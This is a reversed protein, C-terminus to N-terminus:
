HSAAELYAALKQSAEAENGPMLHGYRDYTITVSAHGLYSSLAKANVGAAIMLSAFTHRAEHLTIANLGAATWAAKARDGVTVPQFPQTTTRGFVLGESRGTRLRHGILQERLVGVLPVTRTGARSKPEIVGEHMDWSRVIHILNRALDVDDWRLAMLEGRRLGAYLATAWLPREAEPLAELLQAAEAPDLVRDRKGRVAPLELGVTPNITIEGRVVARRFIARLPMLTNRITSPDRGEALLRDALDQLDVRRLDALKFPGFAPLIFRRLSSDYGRIVSPKYIDGSRNRITGARAGDIWAAAAERVTTKTQARLEGRRLAVHADSRWGKAAAQTRFTKRIKRHTSADWVWAEYSPSCACPRNADTPCTRAHRVSIGTPRRKQHMPVEM